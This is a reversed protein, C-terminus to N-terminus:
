TAVSGSRLRGCAPPWPRGPASAGAGIGGRNGVVDRREIPFDRAGFSRGRRLASGGAAPSGPSGAHRRGFGHPDSPIKAATRAPRSARSVASPPARGGSVPEAALRDSWDFSGSV